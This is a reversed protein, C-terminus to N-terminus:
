IHVLLIAGHKVQLIIFTEYTFLLLQGCYFWGSYLMVSYVLMVIISFIFLHWVLKNNGKKGTM